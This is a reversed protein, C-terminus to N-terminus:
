LNDEYGFIGLVNTSNGSNAAWFVASGELIFDFPSVAQGVNSTTPVFPPPNATSSFAGYSNNPAAMVVADNYAIFGRIRAATSPVYSTVGVSVWTPASVSGITGGTAMQPLASLNSGVLYQTNRGLQTFGMLNMSGDTRATGIRAFYTYGVPLTPSTASASMLINTTPGSPNYIAYIYYWTSAAISGTDVGGAGSTAINISQSFATLLAAANGSTQVVVQDATWTATTNSAWVGKLNKFSGQVPSTATAPTSASFIQQWGGSSSNLASNYVYEYYHNAVMGGSGIQTAGDNAYANLQGAGGLGGITTLSTTTNAALFGVRQYNGLATLTPYGSLSSLTVVNTGTASCAITGTNGSSTFNQDFDSLPQSGAALNGFTIPFTFSSM